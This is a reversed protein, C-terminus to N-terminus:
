KIFKFTSLVREVEAFYPENQHELAVLQFRFLYNEKQVYLYKMHLGDHYYILSKAPYGLFNLEHEETILDKNKISGMIGSMSASFVSATFLFPSNEHEAFGVFFKPRPNYVLSEDEDMKWQAPVKLEFGYKENRYTKWNATGVQLVSCNDVKEWDKLVDCPTSFVRCEGTKPNKAPVVVQVCGQNQQYFYWYAGFALGAFVVVAIFILILKKPM